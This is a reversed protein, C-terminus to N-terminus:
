SRWMPEKSTPLDVVAPEEAALLAAGIPAALTDSGLLGVRDAVGLSRLFESGGLRRRLAARVAELLPAGVEAVGGAILVHDVDCTLVLLRVAHAVADAFRDRVEVAREEGRTAAAFVEAAAHRGAPVPWAVDLAAGSAYRELCGRQGCPCAAGDERYTLHGIEGAAGHRGRRLRGDLLLGAAVGTGLALVALDGPMGLVRSAGLAAANLDNEVTVPVGLREAVLRGVPIAADDMQLNVAYSVEGSASDVMGPLGLGVGALGSPPVGADACLRQVAVVVSDVVGDVSPSTPLRASGLVTGDQALLVGLVKTGGVDLGVSEGAM